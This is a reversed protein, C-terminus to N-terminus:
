TGQLIVSWVKNLHGVLTLHMLAPVLGQSQALSALSALPALAAPCTDWGTRAFLALAPPGTWALQM